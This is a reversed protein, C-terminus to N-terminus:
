DKVAIYVAVGILLLIGVSGLGSSPTTSVAATGTATANPNPLLPQNRLGVVSIPDTNSAVRSVINGLASLDGRLLGISAADAALTRGNITNVLNAAEISKQNNDNGGIVMTGTNILGLAMGLNARGTFKKAWMAAATGGVGAAAGAGFTAIGSGGSSMRSLYQAM